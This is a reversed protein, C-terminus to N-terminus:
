QDSSLWTLQGFTADRTTSQNQIRIMPSDVTVRRLSDSEFAVGNVLHVIAHITGEGMREAIREDESM